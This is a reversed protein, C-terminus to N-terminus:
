RTRTRRVLRQLFIEFRPPGAKPNSVLARSLNEESWYRIKVQLRRGRGVGPTASGNHKQLTRKARGGLGIRRSANLPSAPSILLTDLQLGARACKPQTGQSLVHCFNRNSQRQLFHDAHVLVRPALAGFALNASFDTWLPDTAIDVCDGTPGPSGGNRHVPLRGIFAGDIAETYTKPFIQHEATGCNGVM